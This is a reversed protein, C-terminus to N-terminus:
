GNAERLARMYAEKTLREGYVANWKFFIAKPNHGKLLAARIWRVATEHRQQPGEAIKRAYKNIPVDAVVSGADDEGEGAEPAYGCKGCPYEEVPQGCVKCVRGALAIGRGDLSYIREDEPMGHLHSIGRLDILTASTKRPARGGGDWPRLVRGVMQLFIGPTSAGRALICCQAMPLDTGETFVYVNALMRVHGSRFGALAAARDDAKTDAHVAVTRIGAETFERAYTEAEEVSRAFLFGQQGPAHARYAALPHQAIHKPELVADPRAVECPVLHGMETLRRVSVAVALGTFLPALGSGDGREPTATLGLAHTEKYADLITAWKEAAESAHHCEDWILLQAPPRIDRALLTQISAVQVPAAPAIEWATRAAVAGVELGLEALTACTQDILETRHALWLVRSGKAVALRVVEAATRTKGSGTPSVLVVRRHRRFQERCAAIADFQYPRLPKPAVAPAGLM